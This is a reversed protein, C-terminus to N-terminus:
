FCENKAFTIIIYRGNYLDHAVDSMEDQHTCSSGWHPGASSRLMFHNNSDVNNSTAKM